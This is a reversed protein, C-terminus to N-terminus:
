PAKHSIHPNAYGADSCKPGANHSNPSHPTTQTCAPATGLERSEPMAGDPEDWAKRSGSEPESPTDAEVHEVPLLFGYRDWFLQMAPPLPKQTTTM